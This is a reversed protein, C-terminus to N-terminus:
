LPLFIHPSMSAFCNSRCLLFLRGKSSEKLMVHFMQITILLLLLFNDPPEEIQTLLLEM